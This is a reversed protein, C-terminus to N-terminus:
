FQRKDIDVKTRCYFWLSVTTVAGAADALLDGISCNRGPIFFQHLEDSIGYLLCFLVVGLGTLMLRSRSMSKAQLGPLSFGTGSFRSIGEELLRVAFLTAAALAGFAIFHLIKDQHYVVPNLTLHPQQSLFFIIGGVALMPTICLLSQSLM